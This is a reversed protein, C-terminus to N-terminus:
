LDAPSPWPFDPFKGKVRKLYPGRLEQMKENVSFEDITKLVRNEMLIKGDVMVTEVSDGTACWVLNYLIDYIPMWEPRRLDFLIIDAKKGKEISGIEKELGLAKAGNITAMEVGVEARAPRGCPRRGSYVDDAWRMRLQGVALYMIRVMDFTGGCCPTDAGLGITVGAELMEPMKFIKPNLTKCCRFFCTPNHNIKVDHEKVMQVEADSLASMHNLLVNPGLVGLKYLAETEGISWASCHTYFIANYKDALKKAGVAWEDSMTGVGETASMVRIRGDAAGSYKQIRREIGSLAENTEQLLPTTLGGPGPQDAAFGGVCCRMGSEMLAKITEDFFELGQHAWCTTGTKIMAAMLNLFGYYEDEPTLTAKQPYLWTRMRPQTDVGYAPTYECAHEPCIDTRIGRPDQNAHLNIMGPMILKDKANIVKNASYKQKLERTKGVDIIRDKEIAIAGDYIIRRDRDVTLIWGNEILIDVL